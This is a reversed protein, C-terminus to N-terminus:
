KKPLSDKLSITQKGGSDIDNLCEVTRSPLYFIQIDKKLLFPLNLEHWLLLHPIMKKFIM